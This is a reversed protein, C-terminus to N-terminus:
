CVETIECDSADSCSERIDDAANNEEKKVTADDNKTKKQCTAECDEGICGSDIKCEHTIECDYDGDCSEDDDGYWKV